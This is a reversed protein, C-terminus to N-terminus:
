EGDALKVQIHQHFVEYTHIYTHICTFSLRYLLKTSMEPLPIPSNLHGSEYRM